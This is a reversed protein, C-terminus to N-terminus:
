WRCLYELPMVSSEESYPHTHLSVLAQERAKRPSSEISNPDGAMRKKFDSVPFEFFESDHPVGLKIIPASAANM